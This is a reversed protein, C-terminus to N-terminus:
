RGRLLSHRRRHPRQYQQQYQYVPGSPSGQLAGQTIEAGKAGANLAAVKVTKVDAGSAVAAKVVLRASFGETIAVKVVSGPEIGAKIMIRLISSINHGADSANWIVQGLPTGQALSREIYAKFEEDQVNEDHVVAGKVILEAFAQPAYLVVALGCAAMGYVLRKMAVSMLPHKRNVM